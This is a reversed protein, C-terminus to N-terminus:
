LKLKSYQLMYGVISFSMRAPSQLNAYTPIELFPKTQGLTRPLAFLWMEVQLKSLGPWFSHELHTWVEAIWFLLANCMVSSLAFFCLRIASIEMVQCKEVSKIDQWESAAIYTRAKPSRNRRCSNPLREIVL